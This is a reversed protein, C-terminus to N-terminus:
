RAIGLKRFRAGSFNRREFEKKAVDTCFLVPATTHMDRWFHRPGIREADFVYEAGKANLENYNHAGSEFVFPEATTADRDISSIRNLVNWFWRRELLVNRPKLLDLREFQHADGDLEEILDRMSDSVSYVTSWLFDDPEVRSHWRLKTPVSEPIVRCGSTFTSVRPNIGDDSPWQDITLIPSTQPSEPWNLYREDMSGRPIRTEPQYRVRPHYYKMNWVTFSM